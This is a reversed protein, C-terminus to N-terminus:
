PNANLITTHVSSHNDSQLALTSTDHSFFHLNDSTSPISPPNIPIPNGHVASNGASVPNPSSSICTYYRPPFANYSDRTFMLLRPPHCADDVLTHTCSVGRFCPPLVLILSADHEQMIAMNQKEEMPLKARAPIARYWEGLPYSFAIPEVPSRTTYRVM